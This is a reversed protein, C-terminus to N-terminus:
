GGPRTNGDLNRVYDFDFAIGYHRGDPDYDLERGSSFMFGASIMAGIVDPLGVLGARSYISVQVTEESITIENDAHEVPLLNIVQYTMFTDPLNAAPTSALYQDAAVPVGLGSLASYTTEWITSM